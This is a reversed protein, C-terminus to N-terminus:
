PRTSVVQPSITWKDLIQYTFTVIIISFSLSISHFIEIGLIIFLEIALELYNFTLINDHKTSSYRKINRRARQEGTVDNDM